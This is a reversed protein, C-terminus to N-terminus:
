KFMSNYMRKINNAIDKNSETVADKPLSTKFFELYNLGEKFKPKKLTPFPERVKPKAPAKPTPEKPEKIKSKITKGKRKPKSTFPILTIEFTTKNNNSKLKLTSGMLFGALQLPTCVGDAFCTLREKFTRPNEIFDFGMLEDDWLAYSLGDYDEPKKTQYSSQKPFTRNDIDIIDILQAQKSTPQKYLSRFRQQGEVTEDGWFNIFFKGKAILIIDFGLVQNFYKIDGDVKPDSWEVYEGFMLGEFTGRFANTGHTLQYALYKKFDKTDELNTNANQVGPKFDFIQKYNKAKLPLEVHTLTQTKIRWLAQLKGQNYADSGFPIKKVQSQVIDEALRGGLNYNKSESYAIAVAQKPNKVVPGTKSGSRLEGDKFEDMVEDFKKKRSKTMGGKKMKIEKADVDAAKGGMVASYVRAYAWQEKSKVNPRVSGPNTKYAGIGKNYIEQIGKKSVGTKKAIDSLSHSSNKPYGYKKNYKDRYTVVGGKAMKPKKKEEKKKIEAEILNKMYPWGRDVKDVWKLMAVVGAIRFDKKHRAVFARWKIMMWRESDLWYGRDAVRKLNKFAQNGFINGGMKWIEPHNEKINEAYKLIWKNPIKNPNFEIKGGKKYEDPDAEHPDIPPGIPVGGGASQNIESLKKWHKKSAAKNIIVEGGELEVPQGNTDTVVAKIGGVPKGKKDNHPKGVLNGGRKGDTTKIAM